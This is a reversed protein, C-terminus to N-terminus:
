GQVKVGFTFTITCDLPMTTAQRLKGTVDYTFQNGLYTKLEASTDVPMSISSSFDTSTDNYSLVYPTTNTNSYFATYVSEFNRFNNTNTANSLTLTVSSLKVSTINAAGFQNGTQARVFSDVNYSTSIPGVSFVGSTDSMAPITINVSETQMSLNFSVLTAIKTCSQIAFVGLCLALVLVIKSIPSKM